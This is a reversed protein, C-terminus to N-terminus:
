GRHEVAIVTGTTQGATFAYCNDHSAQPITPHSLGVRNRVLGQSSAANIVTLMTCAAVRAVETATANPLPGRRMRPRAQM